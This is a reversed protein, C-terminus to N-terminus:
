DKPDLNNLYNSIDLGHVLLMMRGRQYVQHYIEPRVLEQQLLLHFAPLLQAASQTCPEGRWRAIATVAKTIAQDIEASVQVPELACLPLVVLTFLAETVIFGSPLNQWDKLPLDREILGRKAGALRLLAKLQELGLEHKVQGLEHIADYMAMMNTKLEQAIAENRQADQNDQKSSM